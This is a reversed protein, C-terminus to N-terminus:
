TFGAILWGRIQALTRPRELDLRRLFRRRRPAAKHCSPLADWSGDTVPQINGRIRGECPVNFSIAVEVHSVDRAATNGPQTAACGIVIPHAGIISRARTGIRFYCTCAGDRCGPENDM